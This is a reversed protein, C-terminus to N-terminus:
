RSFACFDGSFHPLFPRKLICIEALPRPLEGGNILYDERPIKMLEQRNKVQNKLSLFRISRMPCAPSQEVLGAGFVHLTKM